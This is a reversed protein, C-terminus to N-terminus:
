VGNPKQDYPILANLLERDTIKKNWHMLLVTRNLTIWSRITDTPSLTAEEGEDIPVCCWSENNRIYVRPITDSSRGIGVSDAYIDRQLGSDERCICVVSFGEM